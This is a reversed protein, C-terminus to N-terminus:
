AYAQQLTVLGSSAAILFSLSKLEWSSLAV